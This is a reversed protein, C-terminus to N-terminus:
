VVTGLECIELGTIANEYGWVIVGVQNGCRTRGVGDGVPQPPHESDPTEFDVSACGCECRGVAILTSLSDFVDPDVPRVPAQELTLRIVDVEEKKILRRESIM